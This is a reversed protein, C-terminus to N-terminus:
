VASPHRNRRTRRWAADTLRRHEALGARGLVSAYRETAAVLGGLEGGEADFLWRALGVPDPRAIECARLHLQDLRSALAELPEVDDVEAASAELYRVARRCLDIVQTAEGAELMSEAEDVVAHAREAWCHGCPQDRHALPAPRAIRDSPFPIITANM